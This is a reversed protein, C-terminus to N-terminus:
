EYFKSLNHGFYMIISWTPMGTLKIIMTQKRPSLQGCFRKLYDEWTIAAMSNYSTSQSSNFTLCYVWESIFLYLIIQYQMYLLISEEFSEHGTTTWLTLELCHKIIISDHMLTVRNENRLDYVPIEFQNRNLRTWAFFFRDAFLPSLNSHKKFCIHFDFIDTKTRKRLKIQKRSRPRLDMSICEYM